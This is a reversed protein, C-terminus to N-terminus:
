KASGDALDYNKITNKFIDVLQSNINFRKENIVLSKQMDGNSTRKVAAAWDYFMEIIDFLDMGNIGDVYHEPHHSNMKYHHDLAPKLDALSEKYEKSGYELSKLRETARDFDEKEPSQLKSADHNDGRQMLVVAAEYLYKRVEFIHKLTDETSDYGM